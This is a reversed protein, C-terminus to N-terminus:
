DWLKITGDWSWTLLKSTEYPLSRVGITVQDHAKFRSLLRVRKFDWMFVKGDGDGSCIFQQDASWDTQCAYGAVMHGRFISKRLLKIRGRTIDYTLIKNDLSQYAVFNGDPSMTASPMSHQEPDAILRYDIPIGYEWCRITHDDSSTMIKNGGDFFTITNVAKTHREYQIVNAKENDSIRTDWQCVTKNSQGTLFIHEETPHMRATNLPTNTGWKGLCKGTETDWLRSFRDFSATIFRKADYSQVMDKVAAHHGHYSAMLKRKGYLRFVRVVGDMGGSFFIHPASPSTRVQSIGKKCGESVPPTFKHIMKKPMFCKTPVEMPVTTTQKVQDIDLWSRGQYDTIESDPVHLEFREDEDAPADKMLYKMRRCKMGKKRMKMLYEDLVERDKEDPGEEAVVDEFDAWGMATFNEMDSADMNKARKRKTFPQKCNGHPNVKCHEPIRVVGTTKIQKATTKELKDMRAFQKRQDDFIAESVASQELYGNAVNKIMKEGRPRAPGSAKQFLQNYTANFEISEANPDVVILNASMTGDENFGLKSDNDVVDPAASVLARSAVTNRGTVAKSLHTNLESPDVEHITQNKNQKTEEDDSSDSYATALLSAM